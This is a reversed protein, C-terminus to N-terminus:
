EREEGADAEADDRVLRGAERAAVYATRAWAPSAAALGCWPTIVVNRNAREVSFGWRRYQDLLRAAAREALVRDAIGTLQVDASPLVGLAASDGADIAQGLSEEQSADLVTLDVSIMRAGARRMLDVPADAHCCHIGPLASSASIADMVTRLHSQARQEDVARYTAIGSATTVGGALVSPLSPEDIQLIVEAGPLRRRLEAVHRASAEALADSLDRCAGPDRVAREGSRMEINAALTWPGALQSKLPGTRGALAEEIGDLDEALWSRARAM